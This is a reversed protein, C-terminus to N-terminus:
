EFDSLRAFKLNPPSAIMRCKISTLPLVFKLDFPFRTFYASSNESTTV